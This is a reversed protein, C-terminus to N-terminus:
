HPHEDQPHEDQQSPPPPVLGRRVLAAIVAECHTRAEMAALREAAAEDARAWTVNGRLEADWLAFDRSTERPLDVVSFKGGFGSGVIGAIAAGYVLNVDPQRAQWPTHALSPLHGYAAIGDPSWQLPAQACAMGMRQALDGLVDADTDSAPGIQIWLAGRRLAPLLHQLMVVELVGPHDFATLVTDCPALQASWDPVSDALAAAKRASYRGPLAWTHATLGASTLGHAAFHAVPASGLVAVVPLAPVAM